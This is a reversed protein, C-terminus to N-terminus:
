NFSNILATIKDIEEPEFWHIDDYRRYWTLQRKAYRRTNVKIKEVAESLSLEGDFYRFLERYGVTMLANKGKHSLLNKAEELLGAAMMEDVRENIRRHLESRDSNLGIKLIDFPRNAKESIKLKSFPKNSLLCVEIARIIRIHNQLDISHYTEQDLEFLKKQLVDIGDKEFIANLEKRLEPDSAPIDNDLGHWIAHQYLGSGGVVIIKQNKKFLERTKILVDKEFDSVNYDEEISKSNIFHHPVVSLQESDPKATGINLERYFQRSDASIIECNYQKALNISLSTKGVATPGLIFILLNNNSPKM